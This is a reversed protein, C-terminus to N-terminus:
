GDARFFITFTTGKGEKSNLLIEADNEKLTRYVIALGLGAGTTKTTFFPEFAQEAVEKPMGVGNDSFHVVIYQHNQLLAPYKKRYYQLSSSSLYSASIDIHGHVKIADISNLFLNLFVQQVQHPDAYIMPLTDSVDASISIQNKNLRSNILPITETVISYLSTSKKDPEAPRAYSFFDSLLENLRDVQRIIRRSCELQESSDKAEEEISQAMIKIGALPNRVEHAVASAIEAVTSLRNMKEMEKRIYKLESIDSLSIIVGVKVGRSDERAVCSYGLIKKERSPTVIAIEKEMQHRKTSTTALLEQSTSEGLFDALLRGDLQDTYPKFIAQAAANSRQIKGGLDVVILGHNLGQIISDTFRKEERLNIISSRLDVVLQVLQQDMQQGEIIIALIGSVAKLFEMLEPSRQQQGTLYVTFVGIIETDRLIPICYHGHLEQSEEVITVLPPVTNFYRVKASKIAQGCHCLSFKKTNCPMGEPYPFGRSVIFSPTRLDRDVVFLGIKPGIGFHKATLLYDLIRGIKTKLSLHQLAMKLVEGLITQFSQQNAQPPGSPRERQQRTQEM